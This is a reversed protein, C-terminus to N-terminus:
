GIGGIRGLVVAKGESVVYLGMGEEVRMWKRVREEMERASEDRLEVAKVKGNMKLWVQRARPNRPSGEIDGTTELVTRTGKDQDGLSATLQEGGQVTWGTQDLSQIKTEIAMKKQLEDVVKAACEEVMMKQNEGTEVKRKQLEGVVKAACEDVLLKLKEDNGAINVCGVERKDELQSKGSSIMKEIGARDRRDLHDAIQKATELVRDQPLIKPVELWQEVVLPMGANQLWLEGSRRGIRLLDEVRETSKWLCRQEAVMHPFYSPIRARTDRVTNREVGQALRPRTPSIIVCSSHSLSFVVLFFVSRCSRVSWLSTTFAFKM